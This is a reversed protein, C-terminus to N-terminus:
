AMLDGRYDLIRLKASCKSRIHPLGSGPSRTPGSLLQHKESSWASASGCKYAKEHIIKIRERGTEQPIGGQRLELRLPGPPHVIRNSKNALSRALPRIMLLGTLYGPFGFWREPGHLDLM